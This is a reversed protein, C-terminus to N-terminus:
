VRPKAYTQFEDRVRHWNCVKLTIALLASPLEKSGLLPLPNLVHTSFYYLAKYNTSKVLYLSSLILHVPCAAHVPASFHM